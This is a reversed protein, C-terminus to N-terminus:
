DTVMGGGFDLYARYYLYQRADWDRKQLPGLFRVWDLNSPCTQMDAPVTLERPGDNGWTRAMVIKGLKGARVIEDRAQIYSPGSRQQLGVQCIRNHERASRVVRQGEEITRSVPKELYVDKGAAFADCAIQAHWHDPTAIVVADLSNSDLLKRHDSFPQSDPTKSLARDVRDGFLDCVAAIEVAPDRLLISTLYPGRVGLGIIGMRIRDNAGLVRSYSAATWAAACGLFRRRPLGRRSIM